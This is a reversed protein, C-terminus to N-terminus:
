QQQTHQQKAGNALPAFQAPTWEALTANQRLLKATHKVNRRQSHTGNTTTM